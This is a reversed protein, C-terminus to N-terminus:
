AGKYPECVSFKRCGRDPRVVGRIRLKRSPDDALARNGIGGGDPGLFDSRSGAADARRVAGGPRAVRWLNWGLWVGGFWRAREICVRDLRVAITQESIAPAEFLELQQDTGTIPQALLRANALGEADLEGLQAVTEQVGKSGRRVL